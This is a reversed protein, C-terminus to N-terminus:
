GLTITYVETSDLSAPEYVWIKYAVATYGEAGKVDVTNKAKFESTIDANSASKLLVQKVDIGSSSPIAIVVRKCGEYDAASLDFTTSTVASDSGTLSRIVSSTLTTTSNTSLGGKFWKRFGTISNSSTVVQNSKEQIPLNNATDIYEDGFNNIPTTTGGNWGYSLTAKYTVNDEVQYSDFTGTKNNIDGAAITEAVKDKTSTVTGGKDTVGTDPGYTYSGPTFTTKWAPTLITGVEYTGSNTLTITASPKTATPNKKEALLSSLVQKVNKGKAKM